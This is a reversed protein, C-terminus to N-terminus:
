KFALGRFLILVVSDFHEKRVFEDPTHDDEGQTADDRCIRGVPM